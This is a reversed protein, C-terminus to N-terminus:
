CTDIKRRISCSCCWLWLIWRLIYKGVFYVTCRLSRPDTPYLIRSNNIPSLMLSVEHKIIHSTIIRIEILNTKGGTQVWPILRSPILWKPLNRCTVARGFVLAGRREKGCCFVPECLMIQEIPKHVCTKSNKSIIIYTFILM